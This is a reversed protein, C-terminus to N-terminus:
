WVRTCETENGHARMPATCASLEARPAGQMGRGDGKCAGDRSWGMGENTRQM